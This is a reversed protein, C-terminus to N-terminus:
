PSDFWVVPLEFLDEPIQKTELAAACWREVFLHAWDRPRRLEGDKRLCPEGRRNRPPDDGLLELEWPHPDFVCPEDEEVFRDVMDQGREHLAWSQSNTTDIIAYSLARAGGLVGLLAQVKVNDDLFDFVDHGALVSHGQVAAVGIGFESGIDGISLSMSSRQYGVAGLARICDEPDRAVGEAILFAEHYGM